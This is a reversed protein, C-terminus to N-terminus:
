LSELQDSHIVHEDAAPPEFHEIVLAFNEDRVDHRQQTIRNQQWRRTAEEVSVDVYVVFSPVGYKSAIARLEDRQVRTFSAADFIVLQGLALAEGLKRYAEAYTREWEELSIPAGHLGVGLLTNTQDIGILVLNHRQVLSHALTTKGAFPLGCLIYLRPTSM